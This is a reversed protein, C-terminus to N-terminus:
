AAVEHLAPESIVPGSMTPDDALESLMPDHLAPGRLGAGHLVELVHEATIVPHAGDRLLEFMREGGPDTGRSPVVAVDRGLEIPTQSTFVANSYGGGEVVVVVDALAAIIRQAAAFCWGHPEFFGPGFESVAVGRARIRRQLEDQWTLHSLDPSCCMVAVTAGGGDLAGQHAIGEPGENVGSVVTVGARALGRALAFTVEEAYPTLGRSGVIGVKPNASSSLLEGLREASCTGYLVAPMSPLQALARPYGVDHRCLGTPVSGTLAPVELGRLFGSPDGVRVAGLLPEAPLALVSLLWQQRLPLRGLAPAAAAIV